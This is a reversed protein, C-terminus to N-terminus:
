GAKLTSMGGDVHIVQGTIWSSEDSLLFASLSAIDEPQGIRKMPHREDNAKIREENTLLKAALPTQTLSPAICNFRLTPAYEAALSKTLGEVAGKSSAVQSHFSFGSQVAVTSYLVVAGNGRKLNPILQQIVKVAGVLQLQFDAVFDQPTIRGFPKLHITGPCYALGHLTEPAFSLDLNDSLVDLHHLVFDASDVKSQCYTGTVQNGGTGLKAALSRGIGSSAGIVVYNKMTSYGVM